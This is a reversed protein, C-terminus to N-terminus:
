QFILNGRQVVVGNENMEFFFVGSGVQSKNISFDGRVERFLVKQGTSNYLTFQLSKSLSTNFTFNIQSKSPNPFVQLSNSNNLHSTNSIRLIEFPDIDFKSEYFNCENSVKVQKLLNSRNPFDFFSDGFYLQVESLFIGNVPLNVDEYKLILKNSETNIVPTYNGNSGLFKLPNIASTADLEFQIDKFEFDRENDIQMTLVVTDLINIESNIPQGNQYIQYEPQHTWEYEELDIRERIKPSKLEQFNNGGVISEYDFIFTSLILEEYFGAFNVDLSLRLSEGPAVSINEYNLFVETDTTNITASSAAPPLEFIDFPIFFGTMSIQWSTITDVLENKLDFQITAKSNRYFFSQSQGNQLWDFEVLENNFENAAFCENFSNNNSTNQCETDSILNVKICSPESIPINCKRGLDFSIQNRGSKGSVVGLDFLVKNGDLQHAFSSSMFLLTSDIEIELMSNAPASELNEYEIEMKTSSCNVLQFDDPSCIVLDSCYDVQIPIELTQLAAINLNSINIICEEYEINEFLITYSLSDSAIVATPIEIEFKGNSRTVVNEEFGNNGKFKINANKLAPEGADFLCNKSTDITVFGSVLEKSVNGITSDGKLFYSKGIFNGPHGNGSAGTINDYGLYASNKLALADVLRFESNLDFPNNPVNLDWSQLLKGDFENIHIAHLFPAFGEMFEWKTQGFIYIDGNQNQEIIASTYEPNWVWPEQPVLYKEEWLVDGSKLDIKIVEFNESRHGLIFACDSEDILWPKTTALNTESFSFVNILNGTLDLQEIKNNYLFFFHEGQSDMLVSEANVDSTVITNIVDGSDADIEAFHGRKSVILFSGNSTQFLNPESNNLAIPNLREWLKNGNYDYCRLKRSGNHEVSVFRENGIPFSSISIGFNQGLFGNFIEKKQFILNGDFDVKTIFYRRLKASDIPFDNARYGSYYYDWVVLFGDSLVEIFHTEGTFNPLPDGVVGNGFDRKWIENGENFLGLRGGFSVLVNNTGAIEKFKSKAKYGTSRQGDNWGAGMLYEWDQANGSLLFGLIIITALITRKM